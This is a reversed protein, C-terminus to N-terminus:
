YNYILSIINNLRFLLAQIGINEMAQKALFFDCSRYFSQNTQFEYFPLLPLSDFREALSHFEKEEGL